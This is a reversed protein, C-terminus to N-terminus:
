VESLVPAHTMNLVSSLELAVWDTGNWQLLAYEGADSFTLTNNTGAFAGTVTADGNDVRLLIKKVQGIKSGNALTYATAGATTDITTLFTAISIAGTTTVEEQAATTTDPIIGDLLSITSGTLTPTQALLSKYSNADVAFTGGTITTTSGFKCNTVRSSNANDINILDFETNTANYLSIAATADTANALHGTIENWGTTEILVLASDATTMRGAVKCNNFHVVWTGNTAFGIDGATNIGNFSIYSLSDNNRTATISGTIRGSNGKEARVGNGGFFELKSYYQDATGGVMTTTYTINGSIEAGNLNIRLYKVNGIALNDSYTGGTKNAVNIVYRCNAAYEPVGVALQATVLANIATICTSLKKYPAIESGTETYTDTRSGDVYFTSVPASAIGTALKPITVAGDSIESTSIDDEDNWVPSAITGTNRYSKGNSLNIINCGKQFYGTTTPITGTSCTAETIYGNEDQDKITIGSLAPNTNNM